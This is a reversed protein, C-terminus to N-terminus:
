YIHSISFKMKQATYHILALIREVFILKNTELSESVDSVYKSSLQVDVIEMLSKQIPEILENFALTATM